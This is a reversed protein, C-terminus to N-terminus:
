KLVTLSQHSRSLLYAYLDTPRVTGIARTPDPRVKKTQRPNPQTPNPGHASPDPWNFTVWTWSQSATLRRGSSLLLKVQYYLSLLTRSVDCRWRPWHFASSPIFLIIYYYQSRYPCYSLIVVELNDDYQDDYYRTLAEWCLTNIYYNSM